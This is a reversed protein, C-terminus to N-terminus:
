QQGFLRIEAIATDEWQTGRYIAKITLRVYTTAAPQLDFHQMEWTDRLDITQVSGDSFFLEATQVRGNQEFRKGKDYGNRISIKNVTHQKPLRLEIWEGIGYGPQKGEVWATSGDGDLAMQADYRAMDSPRLSSSATVGVVSLQRADKEPPSEPRIAGANFLTTLLATVATIIGGLATLMGPLTSWFSPKSKAM